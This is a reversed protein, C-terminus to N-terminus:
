ELVVDNAVAIFQTGSCDTVMLRFDHVLSEFDGPVAFVFDLAAESCQDIRQLETSRWVSANRWTNITNDHQKSVLRVDTFDNKEMKDMKDQAFVSAVAFALLLTFNKLM